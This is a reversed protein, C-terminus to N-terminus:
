VIKKILLSSFSYHMFALSKSSTVLYLPYSTEISFGEFFENSHMHNTEAGDCSRM